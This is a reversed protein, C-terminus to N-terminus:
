LALEGIEVFGLCGQSIRVRSLRAGSPHAVLMRSLEEFCHRALKEITAEGQAWPAFAFENLDQYDMPGILRDLWADVEVLNVIMGTLPDVGGEISAELQLDEGRPRGDRSLVVSFRRSRTFYLKSVGAAM